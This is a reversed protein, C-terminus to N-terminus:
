AAMPEAEDGYLICAGCANSHSAVMITVQEIHGHLGGDRVRQLLPRGKLLALAHGAIKQKRKDTEPWVAWVLDGRAMFEALKAMRDPVPVADILSRNERGEAIHKAMEAETMGRLDTRQM